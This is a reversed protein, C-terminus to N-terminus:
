VETIPLVRVRARSLNLTVLAGAQIQVHFQRIASVVFAGSVEPTSDGGRLQIISPGINQNMALLGGFDLDRTLIAMGRTRAFAM